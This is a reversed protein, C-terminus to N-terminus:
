AASETSSEGVRDAHRIRTDPETVTTRQPEAKHALVFLFRELRSPARNMDRDVPEAGRAAPEIRREVPAFTIHGADFTLAAFSALSGMVNRWRTGLRYTINRPPLLTVHRRVVAFTTPQKMETLTIHHM